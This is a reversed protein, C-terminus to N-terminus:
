PIVIQGPYTTDFRDERFNRSLSFPKADRDAAIVLEKEIEYTAMDEAYDLGKRQKWMWILGLRFFEEDEESFRLRDTDAEFANTFTDGAANMAWQRTIYETNIIAGSGIGIINLAGRINRWYGPYTATVQNVLFQWQASTVPGILPTVSDTRWVRAELLSRHRDAPFTQINPEATTTFSWDVILENWEYSRMLSTGLRNALQLIQRVQPDTNGIVTTVVPLPLEDQLDQVISLLSM